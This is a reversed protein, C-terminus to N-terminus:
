IMEKTLEIKMTWKAKEDKIGVIMLPLKNAELAENWIKELIKTSVRYGKKDTYKVEIVYDDTRLDGKQFWIAGSNISQVVKKEFDSGKQKNSKKRM